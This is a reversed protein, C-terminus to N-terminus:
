TEYKRNMFNMKAYFYSFLGKFFHIAILFWIYNQYEFYSCMLILFGWVLYTIINVLNYDKFKNLILYFPQSVWNFANFIYILLVYPVVNIIAKSKQNLNFESFLIYVLFFLVGVSLYVIFVRSKIKLAKNLAKQMLHNRIIPGYISNVGVSFLLFVNFVNLIYGIEALENTNSYQKALNMFGLGSLWGLVSVSFLNLIQKIENWNLYDLKFQFKQLNFVIVIVLVILLGIAKGLFFAVIINKFIYISGIISLFTILLLGQILLAKKHEEILKYYNTLYVM